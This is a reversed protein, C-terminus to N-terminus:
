LACGRTPCAAVCRLPRGDSLNCSSIPAVMSVRAASADFARPGRLGRTEVELVDYRGDGDTDIWKGISHGLFTPELEAPWARGDTVIRRHTAEAFSAADVRAIAAVPTITIRLDRM